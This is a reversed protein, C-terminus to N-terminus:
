ALKYVFEDVEAGRANAYGRETGQKVFGAKEIVHISGINDHVVHAFVPRIHPIVERLFQRLAGTAVGRGWYRRDIWYSVEAQGEMEWKSINGVIEDTNELAITRNIITDDAFLKEWHADFAERDAPDRAIFAAMHNAEEDQQFAFFIDLDTPLVERLLIAPTSM